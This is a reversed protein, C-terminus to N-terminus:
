TWRRRRCACERGDAFLPRSREIKWRRQSGSSWWLMHLWLRRFRGSGGGAVVQALVEALLWKRCPEGSQLSDCRAVPFALTCGRGFAEEKEECFFFEAFRGSIWRGRESRAVQRASPCEAFARWAIVLETSSRESESGCIYRVNEGAPSVRRVQSGTPRRSSFM